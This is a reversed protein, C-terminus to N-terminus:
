TQQPRTVFLVQEFGENAEESPAHICIMVKNRLFSVKGNENTTTQKAQEM